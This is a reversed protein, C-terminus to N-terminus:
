TAGHPVRQWCTRSQRREGPSVLGDDTFPGRQSGAKGAARHLPSRGATMFLASEKGGELHRPCGGSSNCVQLVGGGEGPRRRSAIIYSSICYPITREVQVVSFGSTVLFWEDTSPM